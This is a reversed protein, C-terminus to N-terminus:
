LLYVLGQVFRLSQSLIIENLVHQHHSLSFPLVTVHIGRLFSPNHSCFSWPYALPFHASVPLPPCGLRDQCSQTDTPEHPIHYVPLSLHCSDKTYSILLISTLSSSSSLLLALRPALDPTLNSFHSTQLPAGM